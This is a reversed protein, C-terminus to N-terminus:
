GGLVAFGVALFSGKPNHNRWHSCHSYILSHGDEEATYSLTKNKECWMWLVSDHVAKSPALLSQSYCIHSESLM